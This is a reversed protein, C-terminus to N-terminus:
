QIKPLTRVSAKEQTKGFKKNTDTETLGTLTEATFTEKDKNSDQFGDKQITRNDRAEVENQFGELYKESQLNDKGM